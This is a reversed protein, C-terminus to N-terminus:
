QRIPNSQTGTRQFNDRLNISDSGALENQKDFNEEAGKTHLRPDATFLPLPSIIVYNTVSSLLIFVISVTHPNPKLAVTWDWM